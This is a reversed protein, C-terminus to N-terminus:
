LSWLRLNILDFIHQLILFLMLNKFSVKRWRKIPFSNRQDYNVKISFVILYYWIIKLLISNNMYKLGIWSLRKWSQERIPRLLRSFLFTGGDRFDTMCIRCHHLKACKYKVELLDFFRFFILFVYSVRPTGRSNQQYWRKKGFLVM